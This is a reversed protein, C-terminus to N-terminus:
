FLGAFVFLFFLLLVTLVVNFDLFYRHYWAPLSKPLRAFPLAHMRKQAGIEPRLLCTELSERWYSKPLPTPFPSAASAM